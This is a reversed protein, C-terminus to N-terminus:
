TEENLIKENNDKLSKKIREKILKDEEDLKKNLEKKTIKTSKIKIQKLENEDIKEKLKKNNNKKSNDQPKIQIDKTIGNYVKKIGSKTKDGIKKVNEKLGSIDIKKDKKIEIIEKQAIEEPTGIEKLIDKIKKKENIKEDIIKRYKLVIADRKKKSISNLKKELELLFKKDKKM